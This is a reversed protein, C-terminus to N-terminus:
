PGGIRATIFDSLESFFTWGLGDRNIALHALMYGAISSVGSLVANEFRPVLITRGFMTVGVAIGTIGLVLLAGRFGLTTTSDPVIGGDRATLWDDAHVGFQSVGYGAIFLLFGLMVWTVRGSFANIGALTCGAAIVLSGVVVSVVGRADTEM